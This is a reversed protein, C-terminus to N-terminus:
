FRKGLMHGVEHHVTTGAPGLSHIGMITYWDATNAPLVNPFASAYGLLSEPNPDFNSYMATMWGAKYYKQAMELHVTNNEAPVTQFETTVETTNLIVEIGLLERYKNVFFEM